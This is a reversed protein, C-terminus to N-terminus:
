EYVSLSLIVFYFDVADFKSVPAVAFSFCARARRGDDDDGTAAKEVAFALPNAVTCQSLATV